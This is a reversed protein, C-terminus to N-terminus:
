TKIDGIKYARSVRTNEFNYSIHFCLFGLTLMNMNFLIDFVKLGFLGFEFDNKTTKLLGIVSEDRDTELLGESVSLDKEGQLELDLLEKGNLTNTELRFAEKAEFSQRVWIDEPFSEEKSVKRIDYIESCIRYAMDARRSNDMCLIDPSSDRLTKKSSIAGGRIRNEDGGGQNRSGTNGGGHKQPPNDQGM